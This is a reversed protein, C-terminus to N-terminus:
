GIGLSSNDLAYSFTEERLGEQPVITEYLGLPTVISAVSILLLFLMEFKAIIRVSGRVGQVGASDTRLISPWHSSHLTRGVVSWTAATNEKKLVGVM